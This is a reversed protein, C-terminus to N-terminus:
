RGPTSGMAEDAVRALATDAELGSEVVCHRANCPGLVLAGADAWTGDARRARAGGLSWDLAARPVLLVDKLPDDEIVVQVSMGPRLRETDIEDLHIRVGFARRLSFPGAQDATDSVEIVQGRLELQPFADLRATVRQGVRIRGDDVDFLKAEVLLTELDPLRATEQGPFITDGARLPRGQRWDEAVLIIGGRPATLSLQEIAEEAQRVEERAKQRAIQQIEVDARGSKRATEMRHEGERYGLEARRVALQLEEWEKESLVGEPVNAKIRAKELTARLRELEFEAESLEASVRARESILRNGAELASLRMEELNSLLQSNDFEAVVDGAAVETGDEVLFQLTLPWIEVAPAYLLTATEAALEGSLLTRAVFDGRRVALLNPPPPVQSAARTLASARPSSCGQLGAGALMLLIAASARIMWFKWSM